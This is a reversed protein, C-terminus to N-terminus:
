GTHRFLYWAQEPRMSVVFSDSFFTATGFELVKKYFDAFIRNTAVFASLKALATKDDRSALTLESFGLVDVFAVVREEYTLTENGAMVRDGLRTRGDHPPRKTTPRSRSPTAPPRGGPRCHACRTRARKTARKM